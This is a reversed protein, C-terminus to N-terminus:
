ASRRIDRATTVTNDLAVVVSTGRGARSHIQLRAGIADARERMGVIGYHDGVVIDPDFGDGNDSIELRASHDDVSWRVAVQTAGSHRDVNALAEQAIRWLEQEVRFPLRRDDGSPLWSARIGTREEFRMLYDAAVTAFEDDESVTARLQYITERLQQMVDRV